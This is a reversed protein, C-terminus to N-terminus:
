KLPMMQSYALLIRLRLSSTIAQERSASGNTKESRAIRKNAMCMGAVGIEAVAYARDVIGNDGPTIGHQQPRYSNLSSKHLSTATKNRTM